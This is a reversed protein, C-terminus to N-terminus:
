WNYSIGLGAFITHRPASAGGFYTKFKDATPFECRYGIFGILPFGVFRILPDPLYIDLRAGVYPTVIYDLNMPIEEKKEKGEDNIKTGNDRMVTICLWEIGGLINFRAREFYIPISAGVRPIFTHAGSWDISGLKNEVMKDDITLSGWDWGLGVDIGFWKGGGEFGFEFLGGSPGINGGGGIFL